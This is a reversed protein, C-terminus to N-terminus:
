GHCRLEQLIEVEGTVSFQNSGALAVPMPASEKPKEMGDGRGEGGRGEGVDGVHGDAPLDHAEQVVKRRSTFAEGLLAVDRDQM